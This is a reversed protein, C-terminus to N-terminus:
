YHVSCSTGRIGDAKGGAEFVHSEEGEAKRPPGTARSAADLTRDLSPQQQLMRLVALRRNDMNWLKGDERVVNLPKIRARQYEQVPWAPRM